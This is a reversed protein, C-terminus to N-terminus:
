NLSQTFDYLVEEFFDDVFNGSTTYNNILFCFSYIKGKNELYGVYGRVRNLSGSKIKTNLNRKLGFNKIHGKAEPDGPYVLSDYFYSFYPRKYATNLLKIFGDCSFLNNRSLGSGDVINFYEIGLNNLYSGMENLNGKLGIINKKIGSYRLISEAYFNFSKKNMNKIIETLPPSYFENLIKFNENISKIGYGKFSINNKKLYVAFERIFIGPPNHMAGKIVFINDDTQPVTGRIIAKDSYPNSYIYANDGSGKKGTVVENIFSIEPEPEIKIIETKDGVNKGTKFYIKYLNDNISLATVRAAYYNGVDQWEWSPVQYEDCLSSDAYLFGEIKKINNKDFERKIMLFVDEMTKSFNESGATMDGYGKIYVDGKLRGDVIDGTYLVSTKFRYDFGLNEFAYISTIIKVTSAPVLLKKSNYDVFDKGDVDSIKLSWLASPFNEEIKKIIRDSFDFSFSNFVLLFMLFVM